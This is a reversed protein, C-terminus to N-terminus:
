AQTKDERLAPEFWQAADYGLYGVAGGAFPVLGSRRALVRERFYDRVWETAVTPFEEVKGGREVLTQLGRGRVIMEPGTGLFSYRAIREGGEVSELLFAYRSNSAIRMFTGVPTHLDGLVSRVVPVVNGQRAEREFADFSSPQLDLM